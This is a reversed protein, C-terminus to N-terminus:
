GGPILGLATTLLQELVNMTRAAAQYSNQYKILNQTEEDLNIGDIGQRVKDINAALQTQAGNGTIANSTDTGLQGVLGGYYAALTQAPTTAIAFGIGHAKAATFTVTGTVRNLGTVVVNEQNASGADITLVQGVDIQAFDQLSAGTVTVSGPVT